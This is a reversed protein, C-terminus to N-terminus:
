VVVDFLSRFGSAAWLIEIVGTADMWCTVVRFYAYKSWLATLLNMLVISELMYELATLETTEQVWKM